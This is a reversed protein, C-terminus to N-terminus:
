LVEHKVWHSFDGFFYDTSTYKQCYQVTNQTGFILLFASHMNTTKKGYM